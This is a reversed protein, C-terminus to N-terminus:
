GWLRSIQVRGVRICVGDIIDFLDSYFANFEPSKLADRRIFSRKSANLSARRRIIREAYSRAAESLSRAQYELYDLSLFPNWENM